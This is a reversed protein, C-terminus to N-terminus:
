AGAKPKSRAGYAEAAIGAISGIGQGLAAADAQKSASQNLRQSLADQASAFRNETDQALGSFALDKSDKLLESGVGRIERNKQALNAVAQAQAEDRGRQALGGYLLGRSAMQEDGSVMREALARRSADGAGFRAQEVANTIQMERDQQQKAAVEQAKAEQAALAAAAAQRKKKEKEFARMQASFMADAPRMMASKPEKAKTPMQNPMKPKM